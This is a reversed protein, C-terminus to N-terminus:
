FCMFTYYFSNLYNFFYRWIGMELGRIVDNGHDDNDNDNEKEDLEKKADNVDVNSELM